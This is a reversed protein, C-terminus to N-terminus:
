EVLVLENAGAVVLEVITEGILLVEDEGAEKVVDVTSEVMTSVMVLHGEETLLQGRVALLVNVVVRTVVAVVSTGHESVELLEIATADDVEVTFKVLKESVSTMVDIDILWLVTGLKVLREGVVLKENLEKLKLLELVVSTEGTGLEVEDTVVEVMIEVIVSTTM